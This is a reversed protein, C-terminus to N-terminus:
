TPLGPFPTLDPLRTSALDGSIEDSIGAASPDDLMSTIWALRHMEDMGGLDDPNIM